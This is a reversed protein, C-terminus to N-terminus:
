QHLLRNLLYFFLNKSKLFGYSLIQDLISFLGSTSKMDVISSKLDGDLYDSFNFWKIYSEM